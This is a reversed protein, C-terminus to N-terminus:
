RLAPVETNEHADGMMRRRTLLMFGAIVAIGTAIQVRAPLYRVRRVLGSNTTGLLDHRLREVYRKSPQVGVLALHLRRILQTLQIVSARPVNYQALITDMDSGEALLADTVASLLDQLESNNSIAM